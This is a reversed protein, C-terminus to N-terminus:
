LPEAGAGASGPFAFFVFSQGSHCLQQLRAFMLTCTSSVTSHQAGGVGGGQGGLKGHSSCVGHVMTEVRAVVCRSCTRTRNGRKPRDLKPRDFQELDSNHVLLLCHGELIWYGGLRRLIAM